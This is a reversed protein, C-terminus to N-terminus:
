GRLIIKIFIKLKEFFNLKIKKDLNIKKKYMKQHITEYFLKMTESAKIKNSDLKLSIKNSKSFYSNAEELLDQLILNLKSSECVDKLNKKLKYKKLYNIPVYCRSRNADEKFDRVINTIQFARGLNFAYNKGESSRIGFINISIYGVAVAVRDCYLEFKKKSPFKIDENIDMKMGKIISIFDSKSLDFRKVAESLEKSLSDKFKREKFISNIKKEWESIQNLKNIKKLNKEDAIDDVERCFAYLAFMARKQEKPLRKMGWFFSTGSKRVNKEIYYQDTSSM